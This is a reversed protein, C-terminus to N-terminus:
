SYTQSETIGKKCLLKIISDCFCRPKWGDFYLLRNRAVWKKSHFVAKNVVANKISLAAEARAPTM